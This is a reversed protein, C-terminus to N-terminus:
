EFFSIEPKHFVLAKKYKSIRKIDDKSLYSREGKEVYVIIIYRHGEIRRDEYDEILENLKSVSKRGTSDNTDQVFKIEVIITDAKKLLRMRKETTPNDNRREVELNKLPAILIDPQYFPKLSKAKGKYKKAPNISSLIPRNNIAYTKELQPDTVLRHYLYSQVDTETWILFQNNAEKEWLEDLYQQIREKFYTFTRKNM